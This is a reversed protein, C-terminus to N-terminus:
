VTIPDIVIIGPAIGAFRQFHMTNFTLLHTLGHVHCVAVLRADHVQKGSTGTQTVITKWAPFIGPTDVAFLFLKEFTAIQGECASASLGLGNNAVPRTAVSRFEIITQPTLYLTEGRRHLEIVAHLAVAYQQDATNALRALVSTDVLVSV